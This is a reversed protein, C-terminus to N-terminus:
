SNQYQDTQKKGSAAFENKWDAPEHLFAALVDVPFPNAPRSSVGANASVFTQSM